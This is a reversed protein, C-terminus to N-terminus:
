ANEHAWRRAFRAYIVMAVASAIGVAVFPYWVHNPHYTDWLLSTAEQANIHLAAMLEKMALTRPIKALADPAILDRERM